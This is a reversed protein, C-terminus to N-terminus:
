VLLYAVGALLLVATISTIFRALVFTHLQGAGIKLDFLFGKQKQCSVLHEKLGCFELTSAMTASANTAVVGEGGYLNNTNM